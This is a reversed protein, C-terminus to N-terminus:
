DVFDQSGQNNIKRAPIGAITIGPELFSKTVVANAGIVIDDAIEIDGIIRAGTGIFVRDGIKPAGLIHHSGLVGITVDSLIKCHEGIHANANIVVKGHPIHLGAGAVNPELDMQSRQKMKGLKFSYYYKLYKAGRNINTYYELKRLCKMYEYCCDKFLFNRLKVKISGSTPKHYVKRDEELYYNLSSKSNVM